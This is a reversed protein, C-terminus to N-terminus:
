IKLKVKEKEFQQVVTPGGSFLNGFTALRKKNSMNWALWFCFFIMIKKRKFFLKMLVFLAM